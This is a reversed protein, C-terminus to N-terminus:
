EDNEGDNAKGDRVLEESLVVEDAFEALLGHLQDFLLFEGGRLKEQLRIGLGHMEQQVFVLVEFGHVEVALGGFLDAGRELHATRLVKLVEDDVMSLVDLLDVRHFGGPEGRGVGSEHFGSGRVDSLGEARNDVLVPDFLKGSSVENSHLGLSKRIGEIGSGVPGGARAGDAVDSVLGVAAGAPGEAGGLGEVVSRADLRARVALVGSERGQEGRRVGGGAAVEELALGLAAVATLDTRGPVPEM